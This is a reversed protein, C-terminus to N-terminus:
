ADALSFIYFNSNLFECYAGPIEKVSEVVGSVPAHWRHYDQPALRAIVLSGGELERGLEADGVLRELTFGFGKIWYKTAADTTPFVTMRCDAPSSTVADNDAEDMPRAEHKIERAFFANFTPYKTPDPEIMEQMSPGLEFSDIFPQIHAVSEPADYEAGIKESQSKLLGLVYQNHLLKEQESGYYLLHMGIRVYVSMPEFTKKGTMRDIVYNGLHYQNELQNLRESLAPLHFHKELWAQGRPTDAPTHLVLKPDNAHNSTASDTLVKLATSSAQYSAIHGEGLVQSDDQSIPASM